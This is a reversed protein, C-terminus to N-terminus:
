LPVYPPVQGLGRHNELGALILVYIEHSDFVIELGALILVYIERSDFVILDYESEQVNQM